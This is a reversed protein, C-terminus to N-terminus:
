NRNKSKNKYNKLATNYINIRKQTIKKWNYTKEILERSKKRMKLRIKPDSLYLMNSVLDDINGRMFQRGNRNSVLHDSTQALSIKTPVIIPLNCSLAEFITNSLDGPYVAIDAASYYNSLEEHRVFDHFLISQRYNVSLKEIKHLYAQNGNGVILLKSDQNQHNYKIFSQILIEIDKNESLKGAYIFVLDSLSIGLEQRIKKRASLSFKFSDCDAGLPVQHVQSEMLGYEKVLLYKESVGVATYAEAASKIYPIAFRKYFFYYIKKLMADTLRTNFTSAHSDYVVPVHIRKGLYAAQLTLLSFTGDVEIIEPQIKAITPYLHRIFIASGHGFEFLVPLRIVTIEKETHFGTNLIRSPIINKYISAFDPFPFLRDSTVVTIKHGLKELYHALYYDQYGLQPQFYETLLVINM